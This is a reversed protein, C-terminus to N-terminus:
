VKRILIATGGGKTTQRNSSILDYGLISVLKETRSNLFTECLLIIDVTSNKNRLNGLMVSLDQQHFILSRINLQLVILNM